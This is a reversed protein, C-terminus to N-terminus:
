TADEEFSRGLSVSCRRICDIDDKLEQFFPVGEVGKYKLELHSFYNKMKVDSPYRLAEYFRNTSINNTSFFDKLIEASVNLGIYKNLIDILCKQDPFFSKFEDFLNEINHNLKIDGETKKYLFFGKLLLELGHYFNYLVPVIINSDSWKTQNEYEDWPIAQNSVITFKNGQDITENIVTQVLKLYYFSM